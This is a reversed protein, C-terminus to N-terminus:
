QVTEGSAVTCKQDFAERTMIVFPRFWGLIKQLRKCNIEDKAVRSLSFNPVDVPRLFFV